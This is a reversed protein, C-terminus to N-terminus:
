LHERHTLIHSSGFANNIATRATAKGTNSNNGTYYDSGIYAGTTINSNNMACSVLNSDPM